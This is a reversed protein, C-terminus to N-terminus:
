GNGHKPHKYAIVSVDSMTVFGETVKENIAELYSRIKEMEDIIEIVM